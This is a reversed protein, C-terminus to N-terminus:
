FFYFTKVHPNMTSREGDGFSRFFLSSHKGIAFVGKRDLKM